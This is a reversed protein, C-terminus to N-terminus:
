YLGDHSVLYWTLPHVPSQVCVCVCVCIVRPSLVYQYLRWFVASNSICAIAPHLFVYCVTLFMRMLVHCGLFWPAIYPQTLGQVRFWGNEGMEAM